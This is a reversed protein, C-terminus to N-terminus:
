RCEARVCKAGCCAVSTVRALLLEVVQGDKSPDDDVLGRM